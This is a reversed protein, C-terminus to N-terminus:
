SIQSLIEQPIGRKTQNCIRASPCNDVFGLVTDLRRYGYKVMPDEYSQDHTREGVKM